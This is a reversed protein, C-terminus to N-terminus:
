NWYKNNKDNAVNAHWWEEAKTQNWGYSYNSEELFHYIEKATQPRKQPSKELCSMIIDNLDQPFDDIYQSIQTPISEAHAMVTALASDKLFVYHGTFIWYAVCGLLYIDTRSDITKKGFVMEPAIFTPTGNIVDQQTIKQSDWDRKVMGFDLVKVFDYECGRQCLFINAPKIDRHVLGKHHAEILSKCIQKLIYVARPIPLHGHQDVLQDLDLGNLLEMAYYFNGSNAVGFDFIQVTHPSELQAIAEAEREFRILANESTRIVDPRIIKVAAPRTLMQHQAEWVEGMGGSAIKKLIRYSGIRKADLMEKRLSFIVFSGYSAIIAATAFHAATWLDILELSDYSFKIFVITFFYASTAAIVFLFTRKWNNPLFLGYVVILNALGACLYVRNLSVESFIGEKSMQAIVTSYKTSLLLIMTGFVFVEIIRLIGVSFQKLMLVATSIALMCLAFLQLEMPQDQIYLGRVYFITVALFLVLSVATLRKQLLDRDSISDDYSNPTQFKVNKKCENACKENSIMEM